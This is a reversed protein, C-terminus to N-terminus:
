RQKLTGQDQYAELVSQVDGDMVLSGHDLWIARTCMERVAAASHSVFLLCKPGRRFSALASRCKEQFRADGVALVEDLLLIDPDAQIAISFGLRMIMGSSYTRLPENIFDGIESFEVIQDFLDFTRGRSLGLLSANMVLNEAGTLDPHFGSGLELLAGIRGSRIIRGPNPEVLGAALSLLTSKGAGNHGVVGLSEGEEVRFSLNKLAYFPQQKGSGFWRLIHTRLLQRGANHPFWKSVNQFELFTM